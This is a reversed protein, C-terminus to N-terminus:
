FGCVLVCPPLLGRLCITTLFNCNAGRGFKGGDEQREGAGARSLTQSKNQFVLYKHSSLGRRETSGASGAACPIIKIYAAVASIKKSM